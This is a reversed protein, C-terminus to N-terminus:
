HAQHQAELDGKHCFSIFAERGGLCLETCNDQILIPSSFYFDFFDGKFTPLSSTPLEYGPPWPLTVYSTKKKRRNKICKTGGDANGITCSSWSHVEMLNETAKRNKNTNKKSGLFRIWTSLSLCHELIWQSNWLLWLHALLLFSQFGGLKDATSLWNLRGWSQRGEGARLFM